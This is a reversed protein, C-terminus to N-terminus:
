TNAGVTNELIKVKLELREVQKSLTQTKATLTANIEVLTNIKDIIKDIDADSYMQM